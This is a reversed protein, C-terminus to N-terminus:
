SAGLTIRSTSAWNPSRQVGQTICPCWLSGTVHWFSPAHNRSLGWNAPAKCIARFNRNGHFLLWFRSQLLAADHTLGPPMIVGKQRRLLNLVAPHVKCKKKSKGLSRSWLSLRHRSFGWSHSWVRGKFRSQDHHPTKHHRGIFPKAKWDWIPKPPKLHGDSCAKSDHDSMPLVVHPGVVSMQKCCKGCSKFQIQSTVNVRACQLFKQWFETENLFSLCSVDSHIPQALVPGCTLDPVTHCWLPAM